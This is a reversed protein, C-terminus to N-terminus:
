LKLSRKKHGVLTNAEERTPIDENKRPRLSVSKITGFLNARTVEMSEVRFGTRSDYKTSFECRVYPRQEDRWHSFTTLYFPSFHIRHRLTEYFHALISDKLKDAHGSDSLFYGDHGKAKMLTDFAHIHGRLREMKNNSDM